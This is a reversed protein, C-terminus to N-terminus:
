CKGWGCSKCTVCGELYALADSGCADCVKASASKTGDPIYTKLVRALCKSFSFMDDNKEKQIQEVVFQIPIEHRLALSLTRTFAGQAPNAFLTVVDRFLIEDDDGIPVNLNYTVVGGKKGNKILFGTKAKKPVEIQQSVGCFVEYPKDNRIGVLVLWSERNGDTGKVNLTHIDCPLVKPRKVVSRDVEAKKEETTVLVGARCGDRYVTFGKCGAKWAEFYVESVMEKTADAPLNCTKSISHDIWKQAAAQIKVSQLWDVDNSTAEWYPSEEVSEKGTIEMWKKFNHHYVTYEQWKDGMEDEFDPVRDDGPVLKRRRKYSLLFAPEIGSTTQTMTSGSGVPATTTLAINRRGTTEWMGVVVEGCAKIVRKLYTHDKELDYDFIPFAGREAALVCSSTHAGVALAKYIKETVNISRSSGYKLNLMALTDGLGTIGLGTRRGKVCKERIKQWLDLEVQKVYDPLEDRAIKALIKDVAELELDVLDDMLRQAKMTVDHFRKFDFIPCDEFAQKVFSALNIVMLRCSDYACLVLEGCPNTSISGFGLATYIDAPTNQTVRDWFLAGPEASSWASDVFQEWIAVPDVVRTIKADKPKAEVPWRLTFVQKKVVAEMFEDTFRISLNAGTVKKLDRKINIFTEIEPHRCDITMMLAGRRGKQAVERCSNSYRELFVGIGDTTRAANSTELGKPRIPSIDFGVGGRRKMIQVQEQDTLLIGGYSDKPSDVVFCNSLSQLQHENGIGSMPSGQPIVDRFSKFLQYIEEETMPNPYKKEIRAFERACRRHIEDPSRELFNDAPDRLLYKTVVDAALEDGDFYERSTELVQQRSFM